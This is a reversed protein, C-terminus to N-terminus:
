RRGRTGTTTVLDQFESYLAGGRRVQRFAAAAFKEASREDVYANSFDNAVHLNINIPVQAPERVALDIGGTLTM